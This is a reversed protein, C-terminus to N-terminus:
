KSTTRETAVQLLQLLFQSVSNGAESELLGIDSSVGAEGDEGSAINILLTTAPGMMRLLGGARGVVGACVYSSSSTDAFSVAAMVFVMLLLNATGDEGIATTTGSLLLAALGIESSVCAESDVGSAINTLLTTAPGM